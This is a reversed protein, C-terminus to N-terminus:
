RASSLRDSSGTRRTYVVISEGPVLIDNRSRQNIREMSGVSVGYRKGISTLTDKPRVRVVIRENGRLGEFYEGFEPSGAVLVSVDKEELLSLGDLRADHQVYLQLLMRPQIRASPDLSNYSLLDARSISFADAISSLSDGTKTRYFVRRQGNPVVMNPPVVAVRDEDATKLDVPESGQKPVLIITGPELREDPAIRNISRLTDIGVGRANAIADLSEGSKLSYAMLDPELGVLRSIRARALEAKGRPLFIRARAKESSVSPPVRQALLHPNLRNLEDEDVGTLRAVTSLQQGPALVVSDFQLAEDPTIEAIGFAAPNAMAVTLAIVRPVYLATERPIGAEYRSLTGFDNTNYKRISRLLGAEGMNYAALALEWNGFRQFLDAMMRGAALTSSEPDLREDIWRDVVLGYLRATDPMFQWLGAAGAPSRISPNHGSEIMSQWVLETPAGAKTLAAAIASAYRGRKKAWARLISKGEATSRYFELYTVIRGDINPFIPPLVLDKMWATSTSAGVAPAFGSYVLPDDMEYGTKLGRLAWPFLVKEANVLASLEPDTATTDAKAGGDRGLRRSESSASASGSRTGTKSRSPKNNKSPATGSAKPSTASRSPGGSDLAVSPARVPKTERQAEGGAGSARNPAPSSSNAARPTTAPSPARTGTARAKTSSDTSAGGTGVLAAVGSPISGNSEAWARPAHQLLALM